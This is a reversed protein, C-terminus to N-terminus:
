AIFNIYSVLKKYSIIKSFERCLKDSLNQKALNSGWVKPDTTLQEVLQVVAGHSPTMFRKLATFQSHEYCSFHKHM